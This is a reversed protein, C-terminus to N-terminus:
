MLRNNIDVNIRHNFVDLSGKVYIELATAIHKAEAEEQSLINSNAHTDSLPAKIIFPICRERLAARTFTEYFTQKTQGMADLMPDFKQIEM